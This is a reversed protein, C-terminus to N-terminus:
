EEKRLAVERVVTALDSRLEEVYVYLRFTLYFSLTVALIIMLDLPREIGIANSMSQLSAISLLIAAIFAIVSLWAISWVVMMGWSMRGERFRLVVRSLAFLSFLIGFAEIIM